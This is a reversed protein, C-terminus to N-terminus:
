APVLNSFQEGAFLKKYTFLLQTAQREFMGSMLNPQRSWAYEGFSYALWHEFSTDLEAAYPRAVLHGSCRRLFEAVQEVGWGCFEFCNALNTDLKSGFYDEAPSFGNPHPPNGLQEMRLLLYQSVLYDFNHVVLGPHEGSGGGLVLNSPTCGFDSAGRAAKVTANSHYVPYGALTGVRKHPITDIYSMILNINDQRRYPCRTGRSNRFFPVAAEFVLRGHILLSAIQSAADVM